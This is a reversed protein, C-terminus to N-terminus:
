HTAIYFWFLCWLVLAGIAFYGIRQEREQRDLREKLSMQALKPVVGRSIGEYTHSMAKSLAKELEHREMAGKVLIEPEVGLIKALKVITETKPVHNKFRIRYLETRSFGAKVIDNVTKEKIRM